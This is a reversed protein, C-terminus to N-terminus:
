IIEVSSNTQRKRGWILLDNKKRKLSVFDSIRPAFKDDLSLKVGEVLKMLQDDSHVRLMAAIAKRNSVSDVNMGIGAEWVQLFQNIKETPIKEVAVAKAPANGNPITLNNGIPKTLNLKTLHSVTDIGYKEQLLEGLGVPFSIYQIVDSPVDQLERGLAAEIKPSRFNQNKIAKRFVVWGLVYAVRSELRKLMRTLEEKEIGTENSMTRLSLEYVGAINTKENTLLYLFLYRDLPNLEDVIWPDSWFKTSVM